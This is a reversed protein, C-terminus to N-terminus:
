FDFIARPAMPNRKRMELWGVDTTFASSEVIFWKAGIKRFLAEVHCCDYYDKDAGFYIEKGDKRQADARLWAYNNAVKFHKVVFIFEQKYDKYLSGRLLDLMATRDKINSANKTKFDQVVQSYADNLLVCLTFLIIIKRKM